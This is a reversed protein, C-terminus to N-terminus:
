LHQIVKKKTDLLPDITLNGLIDNCNNIASEVREMADLLEVPLESEEDAM